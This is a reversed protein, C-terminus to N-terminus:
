KKLPSQLTVPLPRALGHALDLPQVGNFTTCAFIAQRSDPAFCQATLMGHTDEVLQALPDTRGALLDLL